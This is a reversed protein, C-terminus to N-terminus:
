KLECKACFECKKNFVKGILDHGTETSGKLWAKEVDSSNRVRIYLIFEQNHMHAFTLAEHLILLEMKTFEEMDESEKFQQGVFFTNHM